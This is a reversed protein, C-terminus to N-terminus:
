QYVYNIIIECLVKPFLDLMVNIMKIKHESLFLLVDKNKIFNYDPLKKRSTSIAPVVTTDIGNKILLKAINIYNQYSEDANIINYMVITFLSMKQISKNIEDYLNIGRKDNLLYDPSRKYITHINAGQEILTRTASYCGLNCTKLLLYQGSGLRQDYSEHIYSENFLDMINAGNDLLYKFLPGPMNKEYKKLISMKHESSIINLDAKHELLLKFLAYNNKNEEIAKSLVTDGFLNSTYNVDARNNLLTAVIFLSSLNKKRNYNIISASLPTYKRNYNIISASLPIHKGNFFNVDAKSDILKKVINKNGSICAAILSNNNYDATDVTNNETIIMDKLKHLLQSRSGVNFITLVSSEDILYFDNIIQEILKSQEDYMSESLGDIGYLSLYNLIVDDNFIKFQLERTNMIIIIFIM